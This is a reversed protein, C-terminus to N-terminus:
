VTMRHIRPCRYTLLKTSGIIFVKSFSPPSCQIQTQHDLLKILATRLKSQWGRRQPDPCRFTHDFDEVPIQCSPCQSPYISPNHRNVQKGVPLWKDLFKVLFTRSTIHFTRIAHAHSDWDIQSIIDKSIRHKEGIYRLLHQHGRRTRIRRRHHSHIAQSNNIVLHCATGPIM